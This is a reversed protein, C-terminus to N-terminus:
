LFAQGAETVGEGVRIIGCHLLDLVLSAGGFFGDHIDHLCM